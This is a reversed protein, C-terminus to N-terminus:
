LMKQWVLHFLPSTRKAGASIWRKVHLSLPLSLSLSQEILKRKMQIADCAELVIQCPFAQFTVPSIYNVQRKLLVIIMSLPRYYSKDNLELSIVCSDWRNNHDTHCSKQKDHLMTVRSGEKLRVLSEHTHQQRKHPDCVRSLLQLLTNHLYFMAICASIDLPAILPSM